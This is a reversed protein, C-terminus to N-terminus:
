PTVTRQALVTLTPWDALLVCVHCYSISNAWGHQLRPRASGSKLCTPMFDACIIEGVLLQLLQNICPHDHPEKHQLDGPCYLLFLELPRDDTPKLTFM